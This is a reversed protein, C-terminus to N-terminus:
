SYFAQGQQSRAEQRQKKEEQYQKAPRLKPSAFPLTAMISLASGHRRLARKVLSWGVAGLGKRAWIKVAETALEELMSPPMTKVNDGLVRQLKQLIVPSSTTGLAKEITRIRDTAAEYTQMAKTYKESQTAITGQVAKHITDVIQREASGKVTVDRVERLKQGLQDLSAVTHYQYPDLAKWERLMSTLENRIEQAPLDLAQGKPAKLDHVDAVARDIKSFDGVVKGEDWPGPPPQPPAPPAAAKPAAAPAGEKFPWRPLDEAPGLPATPAREAPVQLDRVPAAPKFPWKPLEKEAFESAVAAEGVEGARRATRAAKAERLGTIVKAAKGAVGFAPGLGAAAELAPSREGMYARAAAQRPAGLVGMTTELAAAGPGEYTPVDGGTEIERKRAAAGKQLHERTIDGLMGPLRRAAAAVGGTPGAPLERLGQEVAEAYGPEQYHPPHLPVERAGKPAAPGPVIKMSQAIQSVTENQKEPSLKLFGDDINIERGEITLIAM